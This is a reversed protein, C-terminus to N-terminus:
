QGLYPGVRGLQQLWETSGIPPLGDAVCQDAWIQAVTRPKPLTIREVSRYQM